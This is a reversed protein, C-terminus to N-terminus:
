ESQFVEDYFGMIFNSSQQDYWMQSIEKHKKSGYIQHTLLQNIASIVGEGWANKTCAIHGTVYPKIENIQFRKLRDDYGREAALFAAVNSYELTYDVRGKSLMKMLQLTSLQQRQVNSTGEHSQFLDDLVSSYSRNNELLGVLQPQQILKSVSLSQQGAYNKAARENMLVQMSLVMVIPKSFLTYKLRDANKLAAPNCYNKGRKISRWFRSWNMDVPKHEFQPLEEQIHTLLVDIQGLGKQSGSPIM